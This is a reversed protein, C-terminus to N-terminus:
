IDDKPEGKPRQCCVGCLGVARAAYCIPWVLLARERQVGVSHAWLVKCEGVRPIVAFRPARESEQLDDHGVHQDHSDSLDLFVWTSIMRSRTNRPERVLTTNDVRRRHCTWLLAFDVASYIAVNQNVRGVVHANM